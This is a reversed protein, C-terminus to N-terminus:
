RVATDFATELQEAVRVPDHAKRIQQRAAVGLTTRLDPSRMLRLVADAFGGDDNDDVILATREHELPHAASRCAVIPKGAAMANLLKIPYGSWSVRPCVVVADKALVDKLSLLDPTHVHEAEPPGTSEATAVVFRVEPVAERVRRMAARLFGLNQYTDLNGTYVVPPCEGAPPTPVPWDSSRTPPPVVSMRSAHCGCEVLYDALVGHPVIVHDARKPLARDAWAGIGAAFRSGRFYYPL